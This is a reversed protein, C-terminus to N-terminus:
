EKLVNMRLNRIGNSTKGILQKPEVSRIGIHLFSNQQSKPIWKQIDADVCFSRKEALKAQFYDLKIWQERSFHVRLRSEYTWSPFCTKNPEDKEKNDM